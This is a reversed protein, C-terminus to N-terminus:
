IFNECFNVIIIVKTSFYNRYWMPMFLGQFARNILSEPSQNTVGVRIGSRLKEHYYVSITRKEDVYEACKLSDTADEIIRYGITAM